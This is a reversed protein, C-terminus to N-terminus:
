ADGDFMVTIEVVGLKIRFGRRHKITPSVHEYTLSDAVRAYHEYQMGHSTVVVNRIKHRPLEEGDRPGGILKLEYRVAM